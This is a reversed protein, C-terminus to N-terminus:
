LSGLRLCKTVAISLLAICGMSPIGEKDCEEDDCVSLVRHTSAGQGTPEPEVMDPRGRAHFGGSDNLM